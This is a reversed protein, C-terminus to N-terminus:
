PVEQKEMEALAALDKTVIAAILGLQYAAAIALDDQYQARLASLNALRKIEELKRKFAEMSVVDM